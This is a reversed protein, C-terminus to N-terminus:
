DTVQSLLSLRVPNKRDKFYVSVQQFQAGYKGTSNFIVEVFGSDGPKVPERTYEAITCGCGTQVRIIVLSEEGENKFGFRAGAEEGQKLIGLDHEVVAFVPNGRGEEELSSFNEVEVHKLKAKNGNVCGTFLFVIAVLFVISTFKLSLCKM